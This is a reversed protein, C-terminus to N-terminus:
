FIYSPYKVEIRHIRIEVSFILLKLTKTLCSVGVTFRFDSDLCVNAEPITEGKWVTKSNEKEFKIVIQQSSAVSNKVKVPLYIDLAIETYFIETQWSWHFGKLVNKKMTWIDIPYYFFKRIFINDRKNVFILKKM